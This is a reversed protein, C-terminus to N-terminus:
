SPLPAPPRQEHREQLTKLALELGQQESHLLIRRPHQPDMVVTRNRGEEKARYLAVDATKLLEQATPPHHEGAAVGLSICIQLPVTQHRIVHSAVRKRLIEAVQFAHHLHTEPLLIAFEEGGYRSVMDQRRVGTHLLEALSKLVVDGTEHGYTDNVSKFHDIDILIVSVPRAYRKFRSWELTLRHNFERRNYIGTLSDVTAQLNTLYLQKEVDYRHELAQQLDTQLLANLAILSEVPKRLTSRLTPDAEPAALESAASPEADKEPLNEALAQRLSRIVGESQQLVQRRHRETNLLTWQQLVSKRLHSSGIPLGLFAHIVFKQLAERYNEFDFPDGLLVYRADPAWNPSEELLTLGERPELNLSAIIIDAGNEALFRLAEATSAFCHVGSHERLTQSLMKRLQPDVEVLVVRAQELRMLEPNQESAMAPELRAARTKRM